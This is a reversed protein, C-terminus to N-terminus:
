SESLKDLQHFVGQSCSDSVISEEGLSKDAEGGLFDECDAEDVLDLIDDESFASGASDANKEETRLMNSKIASLIESVSLEEKDNQM